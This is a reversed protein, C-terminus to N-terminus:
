LLQIYTLNFMKLFSIKRLDINGHSEEKLEGNLVVTNNHSIILALIPQQAQHYYIDINDSIFIISPNCKDIANSIMNYDVAINIINFYSILQIYTLPYFDKHAVKNVSLSMLITMLRGAKKMSIIRYPGINM